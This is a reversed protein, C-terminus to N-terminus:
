QVSVYTGKSFTKLAIMGDPQYEMWFQEWEGIETRNWNCVSGGGGGNEAVLYHGGEMRLSVTGNRNRVITMTEWPGIENRNAHVPGGGGNEACFYGRWSALAASGYAPRVTPRLTMAARERLSPPAIAVLFFKEWPGVTQRDAYVDGPRPGGGSAGLFGAVGGFIVASPGAALLAVTSGTATGVVGGPLGTAEILRDQIQKFFEVPSVFAPTVTVAQTGIVGVVNVGRNMGIADVSKLVLVLAKLVPGVFPAGASTAIDKAIEINASIAVVEQHSLQIQWVSGSTTFTAM